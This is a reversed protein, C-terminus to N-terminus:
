RVPCPAFGYAVGSTVVVRQAGIQTSVVSGDQRVVATVAVAYVSGHPGAAAGIPIWAPDPRLTTLTPREAVTVGGLECLRDAFERVQTRALFDQEASVGDAAAANLQDFYNTVLERDTPSVGAPVPVGSVSAPRGATVLAAVAVVVVVVLTM